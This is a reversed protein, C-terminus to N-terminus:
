IVLEIVLVGGFLVSLGSAPLATGIYMAIMTFAAFSEGQVIQKPSMGTLLVSDWTRNEKESAISAAAMPPGLITVMFYAVTFFTQFLIPGVDAGPRGTRLLAGLGAMLLGFILSFMVIALPLRATRRTQILERRVIPHLWASDAPTAVKAPPVESGPEETTGSENMVDM